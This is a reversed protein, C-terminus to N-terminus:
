EKELVCKIIANLQNPLNKRNFNQMAHNYGRQALLARENKDIILKKLAAALKEPNNKPVIIGEGNALIELPGECNTAVIAIRHMMAEIITLGFAEQSAASCYIDLKKYFSNKDSVWGLFEVSDTLNLKQILSKYNDDTPGAFLCKFDIHEKKLIGLATLLIDYGKTEADRGCTGITITSTSINNPTQEHTMNYLVFRHPVLNEAHKKLAKSVTILYKLKKYKNSIIGHSVGIFRISPCLLKTIFYTGFEIAKTGHLFVIDAKARKLHWVFHLVSVPNLGRSGIFRCKLKSDLLYDTYNRNNLSLIESEYGLQHCSEAYDKAVVEIGGRSKGLFCNIIRPM